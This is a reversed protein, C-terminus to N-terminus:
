RLPGISLQVVYSQNVANGFSERLGGDKAKPDLEREVALHSGRCMGIGQISFGRGVNQLVGKKVLMFHSHEQAVKGIGSGLGM